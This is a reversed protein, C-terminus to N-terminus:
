EKLRFRWLVIVLIAILWLALLLFDKWVDSWSFPALYLKRMADALYTIPLLRAFTKLLHPLGDVPFFINGLFTLPLGIGTTIPAASEYTDALTSIFLGVLLFVAGGLLTLCLVSFINGVFSAHFFLVGVLTIVVVQVIMVLVRACVLSLVLETRRIPTVMFRKLVGRTKLDVLWYALGYIGGQMITMALIGPLVFNSYQMNTGAFRGIPLVSLAVYLGVPMVLTWFIGSKNRYVIRLQTKFLEIFSM